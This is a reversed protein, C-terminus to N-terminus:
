IGWMKAEFESDKEDVLRRPLVRLLLPQDGVPELFEVAGVM